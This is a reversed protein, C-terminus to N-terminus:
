GEQDGFLTTRENWGPDPEILFPPPPAVDPPDASAPDNRDDDRAPMTRDGTASEVPVFARAAPAEDPAYEPLPARDRRIRAADDLVKALVNIEPGAPRPEWCGRLEM